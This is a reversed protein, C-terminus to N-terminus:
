WPMQVTHHRATGHHLGKFLKGLMHKGIRDVGAEGNSPLGRYRLREHCGCVAGLNM